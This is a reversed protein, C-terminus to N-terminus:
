NTDENTPTSTPRGKYQQPKRVRKFGSALWSPLTLLCDMGALYGINRQVIHSDAVPDLNILAKQEFEDRLKQLENMLSVFNADNLLAIASAELASTEPNYETM